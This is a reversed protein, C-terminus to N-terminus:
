FLITSETPGSRTLHERLQFGFLWGALCLGQGKAVLLVSESYGSETKNPPEKKKSSSYNKFSTSRRALIIAFKSM